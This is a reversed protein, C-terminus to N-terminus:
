AWAATGADRGGKAALSTLFAPLWANHAWPTLASLADAGHPDAVPDQEVVVFYYAIYIKKATSPYIISLFIERL